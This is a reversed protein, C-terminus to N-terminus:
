PPLAGRRTGSTPRAVPNNMRGQEESSAPHSVPRCSGDRQGVPTEVDDIAPGYAGFERGRPRPEIAKTQEAGGVHVAVAALSDHDQAPIARRAHIWRGVATSRNTSIRGAVTGEAVGRGRQVPAFGKDTDVAMRASTSPSLRGRHNPRHLSRAPPRRDASGAM